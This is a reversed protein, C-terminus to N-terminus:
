KRKTRKKKRNKLILIIILLLLILSSIIIILFIGEQKGFFTKEKILFWASSGMIRDGYSVRVYVLYRGAPINSPINFVKVFNLSTRVAKVEEEFLVTEGDADKIFYEIEADIRGTEGLNFLEIEAFFEEGLFIERYGSPVKVVLDFLETESEVVVSVLVEKKFGGSSVILKGIYVDPRKDDQAVFLISVVKSKKPGLKFLKYVDLLVLGDLGLSEINIIIEGDGNNTIVIDKTDVRGQTVSASITEVSINFMVKNRDISSGGGGSSPVDVPPLSSLYEETSYAGFHSVNFELVGGSYDVISCVSSPCDEGDILVVPNTFVLNYLKLTASKNFNSLETSNLYISNFSINTYNDLNVVGDLDDTVNIRDNFFIRGYDVNELVINDMVQLEEYNSLNFNTSAGSGSNNYNDYHIILKSTNIEFAVTRLTIGYSNNAYLYLVHSGPSVSIFLSSTVTINVGEDINYWINYENASSYNLLISETVYTENEPSLLNLAPTGLVSIAMALNSSTVEGTIVEGTVVEGTIVDGLVFSLFFFCVVFLIFVRKM